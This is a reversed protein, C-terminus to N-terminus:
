RAQHDHTPGGPKQRSVLKHVSLVVRKRQALRLRVDRLGPRLLLQGGSLCLRQRLLLTRRQHRDEQAAPRIREIREHRIAVRSIVLQPRRDSQSLFALRARGVQHLDLVIRIPREIRAQRGQQREDFLAHAHRNQVHTRRVIRPAVERRLIVHLAPRRPIRLHGIAPQVSVQLSRLLRKIRRQAPKRRHRQQRSRQAPIIRHQRAVVAGLV